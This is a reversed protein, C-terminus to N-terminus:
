PAATAEKTPPSAKAAAPPPLKKAKEADQYAKDQAMWDQKLKESIIKTLEQMEPIKTLTKEH